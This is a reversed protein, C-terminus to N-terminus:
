AGAAALRARFWEVALEGARDAGPAVELAAEGGLQGVAEEALAVADADAADAILLTAAAVLPLSDQAAAIPGGVCVVAAVREAREAAAALAAAAGGGTGQIGLELDRTRKLTALWDIAGIVRGGMTDLDLAPEREAATRRAEEAEDLLGLVLTGLGAADLAAALEQERPALAPPEGGHVVVVVAAAGPPLALDGPLTTDWVRVAVHHSSRADGAAM